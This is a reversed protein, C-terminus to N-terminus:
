DVINTGRHVEDLVAVDLDCRRRATVGIIVHEREVHTRGRSKLDLISPAPTLNIVRAPVHLFMMRGSDPAMPTDTPLALGIGLRYRRVVAKSPPIAGASKGAM